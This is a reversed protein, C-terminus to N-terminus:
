LRQVYYRLAFLKIVNNASHIKVDQKKTVVNVSKQDNEQLHCSYPVLQTQQIERRELM